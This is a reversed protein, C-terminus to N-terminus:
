NWFYLKQKPYNVSIKRASLFPYGLLGDISLGYGQNLHSIDSFVFHMNPYSHGNVHTAKMYADQVAVQGQNAGTIHNAKGKKYDTASLRATSAVDLLNAESGTDLGFYLTQTGITAKVVPIHAQLEFPVEEVPKITTHYSTAGARFLTMTKSEYDLLLEYEKLTSYGILGDIPRKTLKELHAMDMAIAPADTLQMSGFELSPVVVQQLQMTGSIGKGELTDTAKANLRKSLVLYPAGSDLIFSAPKGNVKVKVFILGGRLEFPVQIKAPLVTNKEPIAPDPVLRITLITMLSIVVLIMAIAIKMREPRDISVIKGSVVSLLYRAVALTQNVKLVVM